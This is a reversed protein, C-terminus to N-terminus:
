ILYIFEGEEVHFNVGKLVMDGDKHFINANKYEILIM